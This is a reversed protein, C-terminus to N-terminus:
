AMKTAGNVFDRRMPFAFLLSTLRRGIAMWYFTGLAMVNQNKNTAFGCLVVILPQHQLTREHWHIMAEKTRRAADERTIALDKRGPLLPAAKETRGSENREEDDLLVCCVGGPLLV